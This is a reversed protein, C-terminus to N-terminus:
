RGCALSVCEGKRELWSRSKRTKNKRFPYEVSDRPYGHKGHETLTSRRAVCAPYGHHFNKDESSGSNKQWHMRSPGGSRSNKRCRFRRMRPVPRHCDPSTSAAIPFIRSCMDTFVSRPRRAMSFVHQVRPHADFFARFDNPVISANDIDSDLSGERVCSALVDWLALGARRLILIRKEYALAPVAGFLEGMVPWFANHRHAYYQGALLSAAGPMSGLVLVRAARNEIPPFSRIGLVGGRTLMVESTARKM